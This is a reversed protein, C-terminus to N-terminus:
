GLIASFSGRGALAMKLSLIGGPQLAQRVVKLIRRGGFRQARDAFEIEALKLRDHRRAAEIPISCGVLWFPKCRHSADLGVVLAPVELGHSIGIVGGQEIIAGHEGGDLV